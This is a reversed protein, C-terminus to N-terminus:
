SILTPGPTQTVSQKVADINLRDIITRLRKELLPVAKLPTPVRWCMNVHWSAHTCMIIFSRTASVCSCPQLHEVHVIHRIHDSPHHAWSRNIPAWLNHNSRDTRECNRCCPSMIQERNQRIRKARTIPQMQMRRDMCAGNVPMDFLCLVFLRVSSWFM